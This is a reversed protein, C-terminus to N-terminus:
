EGLSANGEKESANYWATAIKLLDGGRLKNMAEGLYDELWIFFHDEEARIFKMDKYTLSNSLPINFLEGEIDIELTHIVNRDKGFVLDAM